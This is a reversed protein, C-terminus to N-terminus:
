MLKTDSQSKRPPPAISIFKWDQTDEETIKYDKLVNKVAEYVTAQVEDNKHFQAVTVYQSKPQAQGKGLGCKINEQILADDFGLKSLLDYNSTKTNETTDIVQRGKPKKGKKNRYEVQM